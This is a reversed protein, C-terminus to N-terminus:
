VRSLELNSMSISYHSSRVVGSQLVSQYLWKLIMKLNGDHINKASNELTSYVSLCVSLSFNALLYWLGVFINKAINEYYGFCFLVWIDKSMKLFQLMNVSHLQMGYCSHFISAYHNISFILFFICIDQFLIIYLTLCWSLTIKTTSM